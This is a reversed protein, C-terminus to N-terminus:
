DDFKGMAADRLFGIFALPNTKAERDDGSLVSYWESVARDIRQKSQNNKAIQEEMANAIREAAEQMRERDEDSIFASTDDEGEDRSALYRSFAAKEERTLAFQLEVQDQKAQPDAQETKQAGPVRQRETYAKAAEQLRGTEPKVRERDREPAAADSTQRPQYPQVPADPTAGINLRDPLM